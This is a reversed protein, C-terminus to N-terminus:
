EGLVIARTVPFLVYIKTVYEVSGIKSIKGKAVAQHVSKAKGMKTGIPNGTVKYSHSVTCSAMLTLLSLGVLAKVAKKM